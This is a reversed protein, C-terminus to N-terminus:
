NGDNPKKAGLLFMNRSLWTGTIGHLFTRTITIATFMSVLIGISLTLAFGRVISNGFFYLIACTILSSANSDRISLWAREFGATLAAMFNKGERLEEKTREFILINADVAMGISLIIGAVGALTMVIPMTELIFLIIVSYIMLALVAFFGLARYYLVMFLALVILGVIGAFLSVRLANEGLTASITNQGSLIIPADIAGTNLDNALKLATQMNYNGTIVASGGSIKEQVRPASILEGGVFIALPKGVLRETISEFLDGGASDFQISVQPAGLQTYTVSAYKFHSGDLGTPKWPDPTTDLVIENYTFQEEEVTTEEPLGRAAKIIHYGFPSEVVDSIEGTKLAFAANEFPEVMQGKGFEGLDGGDAGSSDDSYTKALDEFKGPDAKLDALLKEAFTKAEEQVRAVTDKAREAGKYSILIHSAKIKQDADGLEKEAMELSVLQLIRLSQKESLQGESDVIYEGSGELLKDWVQGAKMKPLVDKLHAPLSSVFSKQDARFDIKKDATVKGTGLSRFDTGPKLAEALVGEAEKQIAGKEDPDMETKQEKFELQITKGVVKKAEEIDKIGALEVIIHEEGAVTSTYIQPESVGLNNVRREITSLVGQIVDQIRVDNSTDNDENRQNASRLDIRYDLQTGGQLDLGLTVKQSKIWNFGWMDPYKSKVSGPLAVLGMFLTGVIIALILKTQRTFM